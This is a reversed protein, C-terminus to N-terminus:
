KSSNVVSDTIFSIILNCNIQGKVTKHSVNSTNHRISVQFCYQSIANPKTFATKPITGSFMKPVTPRLIQRDYNLPKPSYNGNDADANKHMIKDFAKVVVCCQFPQWYIPVKKSNSLTPMSLYISPWNIIM